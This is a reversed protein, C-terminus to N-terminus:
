FWKNADRTVDIERFSAMVLEYKLDDYSLDEISTGDNTRIIGREKLQELIM